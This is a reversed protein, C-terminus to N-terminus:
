LGTWKVAQFEAWYVHTADVVVGSPNVSHSVLTDPQDGCGLTSCVRVEGGDFNAWFVRGGALTLGTPSRAPSHQSSALVRPAGTCGTKPCALVQDTAYSTWYVNSADVAIATAWGPGTALVTPAQSGCGTKPCTEVRQEPEYNTFYVNTEDVAVASIGFATTTAIVTPAVCGTKPCALIQIDTAFYVTTDDIALGSGGGGPSVSPAVSSVLATPHGDCGTKACAWVGADPMQGQSVGWVSFYVNSGDVAIVGPGAVGDALVTPAACGTKACSLVRGDKPGLGESTWYVQSEDSAIAYPLSPDNALVGSSQTCSMADLIFVV